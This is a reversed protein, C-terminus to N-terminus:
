HSTGSGPARVSKAKRITEDLIARLAGVAERAFYYRIAQGSPVQLTLDIAGDSHAGPQFSSVTLAVHEGKRTTTLEELLRLALDQAQIPTLHIRLPGNPENFSVVIEDSAGLAPGVFGISTIRSAKAM